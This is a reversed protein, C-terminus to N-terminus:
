CSSNGDAILRKHFSPRCRPPFPDVAHCCSDCNFPSALPSVAGRQRKMFAPDILIQGFYNFFCLQTGEYHPLPPIFRKWSDEDRYVHPEALASNAPTAHVLSPQMRNDQAGCVRPFRAAFPPGSGAYLRTMYLLLEHLLGLRM